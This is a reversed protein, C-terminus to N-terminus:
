QSRSQKASRALSIIFEAESVLWSLVWLVSVVMQHRRQIDLSSRLTDSGLLCGESQPEARHVLEVQCNIEPSGFVNSEAYVQVNM